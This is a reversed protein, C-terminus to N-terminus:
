HHSKTGPVQAEAESKARGRKQFCILDGACDSDRRCDGQCEQCPAEPTCKIVPKMLDKELQRRLGGEAHVVPFNVAVATAAVLAISEFKM